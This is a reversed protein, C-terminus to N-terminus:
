GGAGACEASDHSRNAKGNEPQILLEFKRPQEVPLDAPKTGKLIKDVYVAARRYQDTRNYGYSMLGGSAIFDEGGRNYITPIRNKAALKGITKQHSTFLPNATMVLAGSHAQTAEKFASEFRDVSSVEM